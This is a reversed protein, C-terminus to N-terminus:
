TLPKQAIVQMNSSQRTLQIQIFDVLSFILMPIFNKASFWNAVWKLSSIESLSHHYSQAWFNPSLTPTIKINHYGLKDLHAHINKSDYVTWHRPFHWGGWYRRAFLQADWGLSNPTEMILYGGPKLANIATALLLRPNDLHEIVDKMWILDWQGIQPALDEFRGQHLPIQHVRLREVARDSIDLGALEWTSSGFQRLLLLLDGNGCGVDLIRAHDQVLKSTLFVRGRLFLQRAIRTIWGLKTEFHYPIYNAPYIIDLESSHPRPNLYIVQCNQCRVMHFTEDSTHYEFDLGAGVEIFKDLGCAPCAVEIMKLQKSVSSKDNM